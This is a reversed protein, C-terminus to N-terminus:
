AIMDCDMVGQRVGFPFGYPSWLMASSVIRQLKLLAPTFPHSDM